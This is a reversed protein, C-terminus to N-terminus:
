YSARKPIHHINTKYWYTTPSSKLKKQNIQYIESLFLNEGQPGQQCTHQQQGRQKNHHNPIVLIELVCKTCRYWETGTFRPRQRVKIEGSMNTPRVPTLRVRRSTPEQNRVRKVQFQSPIELNKNEPLSPKGKPQKNSRNSCNGSISTHHKPDLTTGRKSQKHRARIHSIM